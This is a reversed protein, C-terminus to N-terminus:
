GWGNDHLWKDDIGFHHGVEHLVTIAVERRLQEETHCMAQLSDRYIEITDPLFGAYETTRQTLAVGTYLGLLTPDDENHPRVLIVVNSMAHMLEDPLLDLADGVLNEFDKESMKIPM